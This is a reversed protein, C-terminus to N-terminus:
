CFGFCGHRRPENGPTSSDSGQVPRPVPAVSIPARTVETQPKQAPTPTSRRPESYQRQPASYTPEATPPPPPPPPEPPPPPQPASEATPQVSSPAPPASTPAQVASQEATTTPSRLVLWGGTMVALVVAAALVALASKTRYWPTTRWFDPLPVDAAPHALEGALPRARLPPDPVPAPSPEALPIRSADDREQDGPRDPVLDYIDVPASGVAALQAPSEDTRNDSDPEDPALDQVAAVPIPETIPEHDASAGSDLQDSRTYHFDQDPPGGPQGPTANGLSTLLAQDAARRLARREMLRNVRGM